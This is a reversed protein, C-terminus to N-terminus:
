PCGGTMGKDSIKKEEGLNIVSKEDELDQM